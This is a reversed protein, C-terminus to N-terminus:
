KILPAYKNNFIKLKTYDNFTVVVFKIKGM